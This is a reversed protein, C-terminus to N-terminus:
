QEFKMAEAVDLKSARFAPYLSALTGIIVIFGVSLIVQDFHFSPVIVPDIVGGGLEMENEMMASFDIGDGFVGYTLIAGLIMGVVGSAATLFLGEGFVVLGTEPGTLGIAQLIGFERRRGLVSMMVANLIALAVIAFLIVHFVYDGYDDIRVASDLDPSATRWGMVRIGADQGLEADLAAVTSETARSTPLLIAVTTVAGPAQLWARVTEIPVHLFSEDMEKVGTSFIGAVRMLQSEVDGTAGQATLVFRSGVEIELRRAFESGVFAQLRDGDELYRGEVLHKGMESFSTELTPDVGEIRVPLASAASSALGTVALRPTWRLILEEVGPAALAELVRDTRAEDLHYELRSTELHEPAQVAVHGTGLRVASDIWQEHGGDALGRSFILLALGLAMAAATLASRRVNRGVSRASLKLLAPLKM